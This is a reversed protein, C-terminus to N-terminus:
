YKRAIKICLINFINLILDYFVYKIGYGIYIIINIIIIFPTKVIDVLSNTNSNQM